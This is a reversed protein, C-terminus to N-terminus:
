QKEKIKTTKEKLYLSVLKSINFGQSKLYKLAEIGEKDLCVNINKTNKM